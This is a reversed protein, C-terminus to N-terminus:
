KLVNLSVLVIIVAIYVVFFLIKLGISILSWTLYRKCAVPTKKHDAIYIVIGFLPILFALISFGPNPTDHKETQQINGNNNNRVADFAANYMEPNSICGCKPCIVAKENLENGCNSCYM